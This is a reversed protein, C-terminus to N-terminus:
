AARPPLGVQVLPRSRSRLPSIPCSVAGLLKPALPVPSSDIEQEEGVLGIEYDQSKKHDSLSFSSSSQDEDSGEHHNGEKRIVPLGKKRGLEVSDSDLFPDISTCPEISRIIVDDKRRSSPASIKQAMLKLFYIEPRLYHDHSPRGDDFSEISVEDWEEDEYSESSKGITHEDWEKDGYSESSSKISHERWEKDDYSESCDLSFEFITTHKQDEDDHSTISVEEDSYSTASLPPVLEDLKELNIANTAQEKIM